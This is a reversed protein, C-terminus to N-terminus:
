ESRAQHRGVKLGDVSERIHNAHHITWSALWLVKRELERLIALDDANIHTSLAMVCQGAIRCRSCYARLLSGTGFRTPVNYSQSLEADGPRSVTPPRWRAMCPLECPCEFSNRRHTLALDVIDASQQRGLRPRDSPRLPSLAEVLDPRDPRDGRVHREGWDIDSAHGRFPRNNGAAIGAAHEQEEM